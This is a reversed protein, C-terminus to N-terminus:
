NRRKTRFNLIDNNILFQQDFIMSLFNLGLNLKKRPDHQNSYLVSSELKLVRLLTLKPLKFIITKPSLECLKANLASM